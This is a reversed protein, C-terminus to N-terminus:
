LAQPAVLRWRRGVKLIGHVVKGEGYFKHYM